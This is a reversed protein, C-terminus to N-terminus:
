AEGHRSDMEGVAMHQTCYGEDPGDVPGGCVRCGLFGAGRLLHEPDFQAGRAREWAASWLRCSREHEETGDELDVAPPLAVTRFAEDMAMNADCHQHTWCVSPNNEDMNRVNAEELEEATLWERIVCSFSVALLTEPLDTLDHVWVTEGNWNAEALELCAPCYLVPTVGTGHFKGVCRRIETVPTQESCGECKVVEVPEPIRAFLERSTGDDFRVFAKWSVRGERVTGVTGLKGNVRVRQGQCLPAPDTVLDTRNSM